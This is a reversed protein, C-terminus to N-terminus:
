KQQGNEDVLAPIIKAEERRRKLLARGAIFLVALGGLAALIRAIMSWDVGYSNAKVPAVAKAPVMFVSVKEYTLGEISNTVLSKIEGTHSRVDFGSRYKVFVSAASPKTERSMRDTEPMTLHVRAQVVGDIQSITKELEQSLGYNLRAREELASSTFGEKKFVKGLTDHEERPLGAARLAEVAKAFDGQSVGVAWKGENSKKDSSIGADSLAAILENAQAESLNGYVDQSSCAALFLPLALLLGLHARPLFRGSPGAAERSKFAM